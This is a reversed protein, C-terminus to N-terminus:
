QNVPPKGKNVQPAILGVTHQESERVGIIADKSETRSQRAHARMVEANTDAKEVYHPLGIENGLSRAFAQFRIAHRNPFDSFTDISADNENIDTLSKELRENQAM